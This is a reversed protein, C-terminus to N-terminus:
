VNSPFWAPVLWVLAYLIAATYASALLDDAIVGWGGPLHELRKAPPIKIIDITRSLPFTWLVTLLINNDIRFLLVTFLFGVVEDTVFHGSDEEGFYQESWDNLWLTIGCSVLLAAAIAIFQWPNTPIAIAIAAYIAVGWLAGLTGPLIPSAGLGGCTAIWWKVRESMVTRNWFDPFFEPWPFRVGKQRAM